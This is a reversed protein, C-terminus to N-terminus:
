RVVYTKGRKLKTVENATGFAALAEGDKVEGFRVKLDLLEKTHNNSGGLCAERALRTLDSNGNAVACLVQLFIGSDAAVGNRWLAALGLSIFVLCVGASATYSTILRLPDKFVYANKYTIIAVETETTSTADNFISLTTNRMLEEFVAPSLKLRLDVYRYFTENRIPVALPSEQIM